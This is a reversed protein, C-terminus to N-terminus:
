AIQKRYKINIMTVTVIVFFSHLVLFGCWIGRPSCEDIVGLGVCQSGVDDCVLLAVNMRQKSTFFDNILKEDMLIPISPRGVDGDNNSVTAIYPRM